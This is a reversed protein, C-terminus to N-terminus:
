QVAYVYENLAKNVQMATEAGKPSTKLTASAMSPFFENRSNETLIEAVDDWASSEGAKIMRGYADEAKHYTAAKGNAFAKIREPASLNKAIDGVENSEALRVLLADQTQKDANRLQNAIANARDIQNGQAMITAYARNVRQAVTLVTKESGVYKDECRMLTRDSLASLAKVSKNEDYDALLSELGDSLSQLAELKDDIPTLLPFQDPDTTDIGNKDALTRFFKDLHYDKGGHQKAIISLECRSLPVNELAKFREIGICPSLVRATEAMRLKELEDALATRTETKLADIKNAFEIRASELSQKLMPSQRVYNNKAFKIADDRAKVADDYRQRYTDRLVRALDFIEPLRKSKGM